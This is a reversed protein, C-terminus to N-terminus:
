RETYEPKETNETTIIRIISEVKEVDVTTDFCPGQPRENLIAYVPYKWSERVGDTLDRHCAVAIIIDPKTDNVIKRALTGGNAIGVKIDYKESLEKLHCIDCKGCQECDRIDRTIRIKCDHFQLCHPLLMLLRSVKTVKNGALFLRNQFALFSTQIKEKKIRFLWSIVIAAPYYIFFLFWKFPKYLLGSPVKCCDFLLILLWIVSLLSIMIALIGLNFRDIASVFLHAELKFIFVTIIGVLILLMTSVALPFAGLFKNNNYDPM